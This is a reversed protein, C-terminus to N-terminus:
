KVVSDSMVKKLFSGCSNRIVLKVPLIIQQKEISNGKNKIRNLLVDFAYRGIEEKPQIISTITPYSFRFMDIDDFSAISIDQPIRLNLKHVLELGAKTLNNNLFFISQVNKQIILEKLTTEMSQCISDHPIERILKNNVKVGHQRLADKYGSIRQKMTSLHSPSITLLAIRKLDLSLLHETMDFAGQYNNVLVNNTKVGPIYRDILVFPINGDRLQHIEDRGKFSTSIILGDVGRDLLLRIMKSEKEPDELSSMFMVNYGQKAAEEEINKAITSYFINSIDAVILGITKSSGLRLSRAMQNPNYNLKKALDKVKKQTAASIGKENGRNNLVLSVLTKSVGLQEAIDRLSTKKMNITVRFRNLTDLNNIIHVYCRIEVLLVKRLYLIFKERFCTILCILM